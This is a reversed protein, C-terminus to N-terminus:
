CPGHTLGTLFLSFFEALSAPPGPYFSASFAQAVSFIFLSGVLFVIRRFVSSLFGRGYFAVAIVAGLLVLDFVERVVAYGGCSFQGFYAGGEVALFLCLFPLYDRVTTHPASSGARQAGLLLVFASASLAGLLAVLAIGSLLRPLSVSMGYPFLSFVLLALVAGALPPGTFATRLHVPLLRLTPMAILLAAPYTFFLAPLAYAWLLIPCGACHPQAFLASYALVTLPLIAPAFLYAALPRM